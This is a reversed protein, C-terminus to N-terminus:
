LDLDGINNDIDSDRLLASEFTFLEEPSMLDNLYMHEQAARIEELSCNSHSGKYKNYSAEWYVEKPMDVIAPKSFGLSELSNVKAKYPKEVYAPKIGANEIKAQFPALIGLIRVSASSIPAEMKALYLIHGIDAATLVPRYKPTSM